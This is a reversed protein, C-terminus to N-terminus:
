LLCFIQIIQIHTTGCSFVSRGKTHIELLEGIYDLLQGNPSTFLLNEKNAASNNTNTHVHYKDSGILHSVRPKDYERSPNSPLKRHTGYLPKM